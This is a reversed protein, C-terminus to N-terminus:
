LKNLPFLSEKNNNKPNNITKSIQFCDLEDEIESKFPSKSYENKDDNLFNLAEKASFIVPMRDHIYKIENNAQKTILCCVSTYKNNIKELRWIAALFFLEKEPINIFYPLKDKASHKWEIYGNSLVICKRKLFSEKFILKSNITEIRSNIILQNNNTNKNYFSYGWELSDLTLYGNEIFILNIKQKPCINYSKESFNNIKKIDFIKKVKNKESISIFRGCM